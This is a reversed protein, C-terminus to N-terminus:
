ADFKRRLQPEQELQYKKLLIEAEKKEELTEASFLRYPGLPEGYKIAKIFESKSYDQKITRQIIDLHYREESTHWVNIKKYESRINAEDIFAITKLDISLLLEALDVRMQPCGTSLEPKEKNLTYYVRHKYIIKTFLSESYHLM